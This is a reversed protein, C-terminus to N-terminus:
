FVERVVQIIGGVTAGIIGKPLAVAATGAAIIGIAISHILFRGQTAPISAIPYGMKALKMEIDHMECAPDTGFTLPGIGCKRDDALLAEVVSDPMNGYRKYFRTVVSEDIKAARLRRTWSSM